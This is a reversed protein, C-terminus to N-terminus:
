PITFDPLMGIGPAVTEMEGWENKVGEDEAGEATGGVEAPLGDEAFIVVQVATSPLKEM